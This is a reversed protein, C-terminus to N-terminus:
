AVSRRRAVVGLAAVGSLMLWASAPLPVTSTSLTLSGSVLQDQSSKSYYIESDGAAVLTGGSYNILNSVGGLGLQLRTTSTLFDLNYAIGNYQQAALATFTLSAPAGILLNASEAVGTTTDITVTGSLRSGSQFIGSADFNQIVDAWAEGSSAYILGITLAKIWSGLKKM